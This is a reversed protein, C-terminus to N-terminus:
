LIINRLEKYSYFIYDPKTEKLTKFDYFDKNEDPLFLATKSGGAKGMLIDGRADGVFLVDKPTVQLRKCSLAISEPHPKPNRVDDFSVVSQFYKALGTQKVMKDIYWRKALTIVGLKVQKQQLTDLLELAGSFIPVDNILEDVEQFYYKSFEVDSPLGLNVAIEEESKHFCIAPIEQEPLRIGFKRLAFDYAKVFFSLNNVLTGDFDFLIAKYM